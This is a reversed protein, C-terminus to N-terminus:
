PRPDGEKVGISIGAQWESKGFEDQRRTNAGYEAFSGVRLAGLALIGVDLRHNASALGGNDGWAGAKATNAVIQLRWPYETDSRFDFGFRAEVQGLDGRHIEQADPTFVYPSWDSRLARMYWLRTTLPAGAAAEDWEKKWEIQIGDVFIGDGYRPDNFNHVSHHYLGVRFGDLGLRELPFMLLFEGGGSHLTRNKDSATHPHFWLEAVDWFQLRLEANARFYSPEIDDSSVTDQTEEGSNSTKDKVSFVMSNGTKALNFEVGGSVGLIKIGEDAESKAIAPALFVVAAIAFAIFRGM